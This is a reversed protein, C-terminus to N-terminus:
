PFFLRVQILQKDKALPLQSLRSLVVVVVVVVRRRRHLRPFPFYRLQQQQWWRRPHLQVFSQAFVHNFSQAKIKTLKHPVSKRRFPSESVKEGVSYCPKRTGAQVSVYFINEFFIVKKLRHGARRIVSNHVSKNNPFYNLPPTLSLSLPLGFPSFGSTSPRCFRRMFQSPFNDVTSRVLPNLFSPDKLIQQTSDIQTHSHTLQLSLSADYVSITPSLSLSLSLPLNHPSHIHSHSLSLSLCRGLNPISANSRPRRIISEVELQDDNM